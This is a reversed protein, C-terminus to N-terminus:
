VIEHDACFVVLVHGAERELVPPNTEYAQGADEEDLDVVNVSVSPLALIEAPSLDATPDVGDLTLATVEYRATLGSLTSGDSDASPNFGKAVFQSNSIPEFMDITCAGPAVTDVSVSTSRTIPGFM